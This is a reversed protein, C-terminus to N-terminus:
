QYQVYLPVPRLAVVDSPTLMPRDNKYFLKIGAFQVPRDEVIHRYISRKLAPPGFGDMHVVVQVRPDAVIADHNTVMGETFRHIVLVKPPVGEYDVVRALMEVVANIDAADLTGIRRGPVQGAPMAFEPDLALHVNPRRLWPILRAVETAVPSRGAQVDLFLLWGRSEAWGAVRAVLADGHRLRYMGDRGSDGQAVTVILHLAPRVVHGSDAAEWEAAVSDLRALMPEPDLEGLIGMRRSLPNGYFAVIRSRPLLADARSAVPRTALPPRVTDVPVTALRVAPASAAQAALPPGGFLLIAPLCLRAPHM